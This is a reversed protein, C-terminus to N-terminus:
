SRDRTPHETEYMVHAVSRTPGSHRKLLIGVAAMAVLAFALEFMLM